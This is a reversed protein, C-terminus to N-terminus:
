LGRREREIRLERELQTKVQSTLQEISPLVPAAIRKPEPDTIRLERLAQIIGDSAAQQRKAYTLAPVSIFHAIRQQILETDSAKPAAFNLTLTTFDNRTLHTEDDVAVNRSRLLLWNDHRQHLNTTNSSARQNTFLKLASIRTVENRTGTTVFSKERM